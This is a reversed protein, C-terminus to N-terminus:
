RRPVNAVSATAVRRATLEYVFPRIPVLERGEDIQLLIVNFLIKDFAAGIKGIQDVEAELVPDQRNALVVGADSGFDLRRVAGVRKAAVIKKGTITRVATDSTLESQIEFSAMELFAEQDGIDLHLGIKRRFAPEPEGRGKMWPLGGQEVLLGVIDVADIQLESRVSVRFPLFLRLVHYWPDLLHDTSPGELEVPDADIGEVAAPDVAEHM